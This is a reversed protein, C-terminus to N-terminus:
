SIQKLCSFNKRLYHKLSFCSKIIKFVLDVYFFSHSKTIYGINKEHNNVFFGRCNNSYEANEM